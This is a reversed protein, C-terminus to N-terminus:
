KILVECECSILNSIYEEINYPNIFISKGSLIIQVKKLLLVDENTTFMVINCEEKNLGFKEYLIEKLQKEVEYQSFENLYDNFFENYEQNVNDDINILENKLENFFDTDIKTIVSAISSAIVCVICLVGILKIHKETANNQPLVLELIRMALSIIIISILKEKM